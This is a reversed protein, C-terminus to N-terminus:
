AGDSSRSLQALAELYLAEDHGTLVDRHWPACALTAMAEQYADPLSRLARGKATLRLRTIADGITLTTM